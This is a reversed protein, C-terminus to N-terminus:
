ELTCQSRYAEIQNQLMVIQANLKENEAELEVIRNEVETDDIEQIDIEEQSDVSANSDEVTEEQPKAVAANNGSNYEQASQLLEDLMDEPEFRQASKSMVVGEYYIFEANLSKLREFLRINETALEIYKDQLATSTGPTVEQVTDEAETNKVEKTDGRGCGTFVICFAICFVICSARCFTQLFGGIWQRKKMMHVM